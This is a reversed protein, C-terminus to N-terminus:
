TPPWRPRRGGAPKLSWDVGLVVLEDVGGALQQGATLDADTVTVAMGTRLAEDYDVMWRM